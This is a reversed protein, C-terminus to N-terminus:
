LDHAYEIYETIIISDLLLGFRRKEAVALPRATPIRRHLLENARKWTLLSRSTRLCNQIGKFLNRSSAEKCIVDLPEAGDIPIQARCIKASTSDKILYRQDSIDIWDEPRKLWQRWQQKTFVMESARSGLMKHKCQLFVHARWGNDLDLKAFYRGTRMVRRDRKIYLDNAHTVAFRKILRLLEDRSCNLGGDEGLIDRWYLYRNFFRIRDTLMGRVRFWQGFQALNRAVDRSSVSKGIRVNHLDVFLVRYSGNDLPEILVNGAHLDLHVFGSQHAQAMLRAATEIVKNKIERTEKRKLHLSSWFEILTSARPLGATILISIPRQGAIKVDAAAVPWVTDIQCAAAYDAVRSEYASNSGFFLRRFWAWRHTPQSIKVYVLRDGVTVRWVQRGHNDKVLRARNDRDLHLWDPCDRGEFVPLWSERIRWKGMGMSREIWTDQTDIMTVPKQHNPTDISSDSSDTNHIKTDLLEM